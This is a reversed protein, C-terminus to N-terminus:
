GRAEITEAVLGPASEPSSAIPLVAAVADAPFYLRFTTGRNLESDLCVHGGEREVIDYVTALGLGTGQGPEKTTFFPEFARSKVLDNM